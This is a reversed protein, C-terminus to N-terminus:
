RAGKMTKVVIFREVAAAIRHYRTRESKLGHDAKSLCNLLYCWHRAIYAPILTVDYGENEYLEQAQAHALEYSLPLAYHWSARSWGGSNWCVCYLSISTSPTTKM